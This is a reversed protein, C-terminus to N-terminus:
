MKIYLADGWKFETWYTEVRKFNYTLLYDDIEEVLNCNKYVYDSNIETYIYKINDLYKNMGKLVKLEAGQIDLNIFNFPINEYKKLIDNLTQTQVEYSNTYHVEPHYTAHLGLDLISSSQGNNSVNFTVNEVKDSVVANEIIIGPYKNKCLEVKDSQGEIWLVKYRNIYREYDRLEECEHAGVHIIGNFVINYKNILYPLPLLM